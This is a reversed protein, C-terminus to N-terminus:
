LRSSRRGARSLAKTKFAIIRIVVLRPLSHASYRAQMTAALKSAMFRHYPLPLISMLHAWSLGIGM